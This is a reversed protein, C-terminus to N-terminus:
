PGSYYYFTYPQDSAKFAPGPNGALSATPTGNTGVTKDPNRDRGAVQGANQALAAPAANAGLGKGPNLGLYGGQGSQAFSGSALVVLIAAITLIRRMDDEKM